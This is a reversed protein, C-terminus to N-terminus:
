KKVMPLSRPALPLPADPCKPAYPLQSVHYNIKQLQYCKELDESTIEDEYGDYKPHDVFNNNNNGSGSPLVAYGRCTKLESSYQHLM